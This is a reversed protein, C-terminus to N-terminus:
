SHEAEWYKEQARKAWGWFRGQRVTADDGTWVNKHFFVSDGGGEDIVFRTEHDYEEKPARGEVEAIINDAAVEAQRVAMHGMKAGSFSVCDGVAYMRETSHVRMHSDVYLYGEEDTVGIGKVASTGEFPPVLMLLDYKLYHNNRTQVTGTTVRSIPFDQIFDIQHAALADRMMNGLEADGLQDSLPEHSVLTIKTGDRERRDDLVNALAFVAEYAPMPLRSGPCYGVVAHGTHFNRIADGFSLAAEVSILHHSFEFFGPIQDTALRRGLACVVFDYDLTGEMEAGTITVRRLTPDIHAVDAEIFRVRRDFMAARLDFTVDDPEARGFALRVLAPYFVFRNSRSVLTIQHEPGFKKALREAAVVGGFGGGLVLINSM